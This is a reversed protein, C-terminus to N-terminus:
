NEAKLNRGFNTSTGNVLVFLIDHRISIDRIDQFITEMMQNRKNDLVGGKCQPVKTFIDMFSDVVIM